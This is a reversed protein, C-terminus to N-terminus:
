LRTAVFCVAIADCQSPQAVVPSANAVVCWKSSYSLTPFSCEPATIDLNFSFSSMLRFLSVIAPPWTVKANGFMALIQFYDVGISLFGLRQSLGACGFCIVTVRRDVAVFFPLPSPYVWQCTGDAEQGPLVWHHCRRHACAAYGSHSGLRQQPM